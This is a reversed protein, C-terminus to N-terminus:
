KKKKNEKKAPKRALGLAVARKHREEKEKREKEQEKNEKLDVEKSLQKELTVISAVTPNRPRLKPNALITRIDTETGLCLTEGTPSVGWAFGDIYRIVQGDESKM